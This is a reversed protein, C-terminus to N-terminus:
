LMPRRIPAAVRSGPLGDVSILMVHQIKDPGAAFASSTSFAVPMAVVLAAVAARAAKVRLNM